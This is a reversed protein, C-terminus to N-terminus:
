TQKNRYWYYAVLIVIICLVLIWQWWALLAGLLNGSLDFMVLRRIVM